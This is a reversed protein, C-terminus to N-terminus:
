KIMVNDYKMMLVNEKYKYQRYKTNSKGKLNRIIYEMFNCGSEFAHPYGGGFRPNIESIYYEGNYEFCDVDIVGRFSTKSVLKKIIKEIKNNFVSLSKDTEGSRMLLKEKIFLDTLEGTHMDIYVDIGYERNKYYPQIILDERILHPSIENLQEFDRIIELGLSASGKRPKVVLPFEYTGNQLAEHVENIELYTPVAPIQLEQMYKYTKYKDFSKQITDLGSLILEVDISEFEKKFEALLELEPDILSVIADIEHKLCISKLISIYEKDTIRPVIEHDDGFYLAPAKPDCDTCIVKGKEDNLEMKFYEVIKVRRGVSTVLINM